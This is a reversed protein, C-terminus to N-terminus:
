TTIPVPSNLVSVGQCSRLTSSRPNRDLKAGQGWKGMKGLLQIAVSGKLSDLSDLSYAYLFINSDFFASEIM